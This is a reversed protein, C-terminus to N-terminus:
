VSGRKKQVLSRECAVIAAARFENVAVEKQRVTRYLPEGYAAIILRETLKNGEAAELMRAIPIEEQRGEMVLASLEGVDICRQDIAYAFQYGFVIGFLIIFKRM